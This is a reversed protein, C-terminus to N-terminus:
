PCTAVGLVINALLQLDLVNVKSDKNTDCNGPCASVGLIANVLAQIDLVNVQGDNTIDCNGGTGATLCSPFQTVHTSIESKSYVCFTTGTGISSNMITNACETQPPTAQDPHSAGFNHGIEHATVIYKAPTPTLRQSIGYAAIRANCVVGLYAIGVTSGDMDKGTWMHALDYDISGFNSTWHNRFEGLMTSPDTSAYPDSSSAWTHQYVVRLSLGLQVRYIGDVQNMVDLIASNASASGGSATVYEYDAETAVDAVSIGAMAAEMRPEFYDKARFVKEAMTAGCTGLAEERVDSARYVVMDSESATPSYNRMPEVFYWEGPTLIVGEVADPRISFRAESDPLGVVFGRYTYIPAPQVPHVIGDEGEEETRYWPARVDHSVLVVDFIGDGIAITISGGARVSEEAQAPHLLFRESRRVYREMRDEEAAIRQAAGVGPASLWLLAFVVVTVLPAFTDRRRKDTILDM